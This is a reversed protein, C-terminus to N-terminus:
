PIHSDSQSAQFVLLYLKARWCCAFPEGEYYAGCVRTTVWQTLTGCKSAGPDCDLTGSDSSGEVSHKGPGAQGGGSETTAATTRAKGKRAMDTTM